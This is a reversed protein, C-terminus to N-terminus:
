VAVCIGLFLGKCVLGLYPTLLCPSHKERSYLCLKVTREFDSRVSWNRSCQVLEHRRCVLQGLGRIARFTCICTWVNMIMNSSVIGHIRDGPSTCTITLYLGRGQFAVIIHRTRWDISEYVSVDAGTRITGDAAV